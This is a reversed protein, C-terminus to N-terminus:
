KNLKNLKNRMNLLDKVSPPRFGVSKNNSKNNNAKELDKKPKIKPIIRNEVELITPRIIRKRMNIDDEDEDTDSLFLCKNLDFIPPYYKIQLVDYNTGCKNNNNIWINNLEILVVVDNKTTLNSKDTIEGKYNFIKCHNSMNFQIYRFNTEKNKILNSKYKIKGKIREKINEKNLKDIKKIFNFFVKIEDTLPHLSLSINNFKNKNPDFALRMRPSKIFIRNYKFEVGSRYIKIKSKNDGLKILDDYFLNKLDYNFNTIIKDM